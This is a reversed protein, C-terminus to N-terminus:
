LRYGLLAGIQGKKKQKEEEKESEYKKDEDDIDECKDGGNELM